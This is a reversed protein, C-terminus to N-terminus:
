LQKLYIINFFYIFLFNIKKKKLKKFITFLSLNDNQLFGDINLYNSFWNSMIKCIMIIM